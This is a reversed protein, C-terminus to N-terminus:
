GHGHQPLSPVASMISDADRSRLGLAQGTNCCRGPRTAAAHFARRGPRCFAGAGSWELRPYLPARVGMPGEGAAARRRLTGHREAGAARQWMANCRGCLKPCDCGYRHRRRDRQQCPATARRVGPTGQLVPHLPAIRARRAMSRTRFVDWVLEGDECFCAVFAEEDGTDLSWAYRALLEQIELRDGTGLLATTM